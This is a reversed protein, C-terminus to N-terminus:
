AISYMGLCLYSLGVNDKRAWPNCNEDITAEPVAARFVIGKRGCALFEPGLFELLIHLPVLALGSFELPQAPLDMSSPFVFNEFFSVVDRVYNSLEYAARLDLLQLRAPANHANSAKLIAGFSKM